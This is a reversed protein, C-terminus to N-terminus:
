ETRRKTMGFDLLKFQGDRESFVVNGSHADVHSFVKNLEQIFSERSGDYQLKDYEFEIHEVILAPYLFGHPDSVIILEYVKPAMGKKSFEDMLKAQRIVEDWGKSQMLIEKSKTTEISSAGPRSYIKIGRCLAIQFYQAECGHDKVAGPFNNYHDVLDYSLIEPELAFM